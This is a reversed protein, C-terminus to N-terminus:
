EICVDMLECVSKWGVQCGTKLVLIGVGAGAVPDLWPLGIFQVNCEINDIMMMMVMMM